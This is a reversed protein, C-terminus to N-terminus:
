EVYPTFHRDIGGNNLVMSDSDVTFEYDNSFAGTLCNDGGPDLVNLHLLTVGSNEQLEYEFKGACNKLTGSCDPHFVFIFDGGEYRWEKTDSIPSACDYNEYEPAPAIKQNTSSGQNSQGCATLFIVTTLFIIAKM